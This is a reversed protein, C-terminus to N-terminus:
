LIETRTNSLAPLKVSVIEEGNQPILIHRGESKILILKDGPVASRKDM